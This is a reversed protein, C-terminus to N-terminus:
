CTNYIGLGAPTCEGDQMSGSGFVLGYALWAAAATSAIARVWLPLNLMGGLVYGVFLGSPILCLLFMMVLGVLQGATLM